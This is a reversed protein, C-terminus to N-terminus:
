MIPGLFGFFSGVALTLIQRRTMEVEPFRGVSYYNDYFAPDLPSVDKAGPRIQWATTYSFPWIDFIPLTASIDEFVGGIDSIVPTLNDRAAVVWSNAGSIDRLMYQHLQLAMAKDQIFVGNETNFGESRPDLNHSGIMLLRKDIVISKSHLGTRPGPRDSTPSVLMVIFQDSRIGSAKEAILTKYRPIFLDIDGPFPMLEHIEIGLKHVYRKKKKHYLAYATWADTSALSNTSYRIRIEPHQKGLRKYIKQLNRSLVMYPTQIFVETEAARLHAFIVDTARTRDKIPTSKKRPLDWFYEINDVPKLNLTFNDHIYSSDASSSLLKDFRPEIEPIQAQLAQNAVLFENVDRLRHVPKVLESHWYSEFSKTIEAATPGSVLIDRDKFNYSSDMDFYRDSINRGGLLTLSNDIQFVKNHMRQNFRFFCCAVGSVFEAKGTSAQHFTPNYLRIDLNNHALVLAALYTIDQISFLQDFLVRVKIGRKAALLLEHMLLRGSADGSFIFYQLDISRKTARIMHLRLILSQEGNEIIQARHGSNEALKLLSSPLSCTEEAIKCTIARSRDHQFRQEIEPTIKPQTSCAQLGLIAAFLLLHRYHKTM